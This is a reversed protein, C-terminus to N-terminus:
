APRKICSRGLMRYGCNQMSRGSTFSSYGGRQCDRCCDVGLNGCVAVEIQTRLLQLSSKHNISGVDRFREGCKDRARFPGLEGLPQAMLRFARQEVKNRGRERAAAFIRHLHREGRERRERPRPLRGDDASRFADVRELAAKRLAALPLTKSKSSVCRRVTM